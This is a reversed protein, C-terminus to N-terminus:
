GNHSSEIVDEVIAHTKTNEQLSNKFRIATAQLGHSLINCSNWSYM